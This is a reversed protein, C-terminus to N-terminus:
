HQTRSRLGPGESSAELDAEIETHVKAHQGWYITNIELVKCGNDGSKGDVGERYSM